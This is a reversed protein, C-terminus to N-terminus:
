CGGRLVQFWMENSRVEQVLWHQDASLADQSVSMPVCLSGLARSHLTPLTEPAKGIMGLCVRTLM